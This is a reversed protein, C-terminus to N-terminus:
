KIAEAIKQMYKTGFDLPYSTNGHGMLLSYEEMLIAGTASDYIRYIQGAITGVLNPNANYIKDIIMVAGTNSRIAAYADDMSVYKSSSPYVKKDIEGGVSAVTSPLKVLQDSVYLTKEKLLEPNIKHYYKGDAVTIGNLFYGLAKAKIKGIADLNQEIKLFKSYSLQMNSFLFVDAVTLEKGKEDYTNLSLFYDKIVAGSSKEPEWVDIDHIYTRENLVSLFYDPRETLKKFEKEAITQIKASVFIDPLANMIAESYKSGDNVFYISKLAKIEKLDSEKGAFQQAQILFPFLMVAFLGAIKFKKM